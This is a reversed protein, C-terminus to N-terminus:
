SIITSKYERFLRTHTPSPSKSRPYQFKRLCLIEFDQNNHNLCNQLFDNCEEKTKKSIGINEGTYIGHGSITISKVIHRNYLIDDVIGSLKKHSLQEYTIDM